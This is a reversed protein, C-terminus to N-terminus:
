LAERWSALVGLNNREFAEDEKASKMWGDKAFRIM